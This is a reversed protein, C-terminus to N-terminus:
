FFQGGMNVSGVRRAGLCTRSRTGLRSLAGAARAVRGPSIDDALSTVVGEYRPLTSNPAIRVRADMEHLSHPTRRWAVGQLSSLRLERKRSATSAGSRRPLIPRSWPDDVKQMAKRLLGNTSKQFHEKHMHVRRVDELDLDVSSCGRSAALASSKEEGVGMLPVKMTWTLRPPCYDVYPSLLFSDFRGEQHHAIGRIMMWFYIICGMHQSWRRMTSPSRWRGGM